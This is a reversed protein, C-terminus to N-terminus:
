FLFEFLRVCSAGFIVLLGWHFTWYDHRQLDETWKLFFFLHTHAPLLLIELFLFVELSFFPPFFLFYLCICHRTSFGWVYEIYYHVLFEFTFLAGPINLSERLHPLPELLTLGRFFIKWHEQFAVGTRHGTYGVSM